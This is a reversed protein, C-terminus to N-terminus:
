PRLVEMMLRHKKEYHDYPVEHKHYPYVEIQKEASIQNYVGFITSPPCIDDWLCNSVFTRCKIWPALNLNDCYSLTKTAQSQLEPFAKLFSPIEPYPGNPSIEVARRFDCLFPIDPMALIPRNSLAAAALTIGGGQSGGTIAIRKSDVENFSALVELARVADAYVYRYYYQLPNRIGKTMWGSHHGQEYTACDQSEGNQGRTDMSMAAIGQMATGLMDLPRTGRGSYGHYICLAPFKGQGTPRVYWGAIRGGKYGDFRLRFFSVGKAPLDYPTLEVALPANIAEDITEKWFREFDAPRNLEPKYERLQALPMDISPM